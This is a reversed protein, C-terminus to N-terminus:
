LTFGKEFFYMDLIKMPTYLENLKTLLEKIEEENAKAFTRLEIISSMGISQIFGHYSLGKRVYTDYAVTCGFTGLLIKTVLTDSVSQIRIPKDSGEEFYIKGLFYRRIEKVIDMILNLKKNDNDSFPDYNVIPEYKDNCLIDVIPILFKYDKQMLFSNRLMGWSALYAYLNLALLDRQTNDKRLKLFVNRIHDYSIYRGNDDRHYINTFKDVCESLSVVENAAVDNVYSRGYQPYDVDQNIEGTKRFHAVEKKIDVAYSEYGANRWGKSIAEVENNSWCPRHVRFCPSLKFDLIDEIQEFTLMLDDQGCNLLYDTLPQYKTRRMNIM